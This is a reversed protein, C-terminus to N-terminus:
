LAVRVETLVGEFPAVMCIARTTFRNLDQLFLPSFGHVVACYPHTKHNSTYTEELWFCSKRINACFIQRARLSTFALDLYIKHVLAADEETRNLSQLLKANDISQLRCDDPFLLQYYSSFDDEVEHSIRTHLKTESHLRAPLSQAAIETNTYFFLRLRNPQTVSGVFLGHTALYHRVKQVLLQAQKIESVSFTEQAPYVLVKIRHNYRLVPLMGYYRMDVRYIAPKDDWVWEYELWNSEM